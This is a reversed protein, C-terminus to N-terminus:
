KKTRLCFITAATTVAMTGTRTTTLSVDEDSRGHGQCRHFSRQFICASSLLRVRVVVCLVNRFTCMIVSQVHLMSCPGTGILCLTMLGRREQPCNRRGVEDHKQSQPLYRPCLHVAPHCTVVVIIHFCATDLGRLRSHILTLSLM